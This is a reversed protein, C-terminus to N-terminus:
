KLFLILVIAPVIISLLSIFLGRWIFGKKGKILIIGSICVLLLFVSFVDSFWVWLKKPISHLFLFQSIVPRKRRIEIEGEGTAMDLRILGSQFLVYLKDGRCMFRNYEDKYGYKKLLNIAFTEDIADKIIPNEKKIGQKSLTKYYGNWEHRHNLAVGSIGYVILIAFVFYGLDRHIIRTWKRFSNKKM